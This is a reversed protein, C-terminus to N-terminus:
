RAVETLVNDALARAWSAAMPPPVADGLREWQQYFSGALVYDDPFGCIRKLEPITFRRRVRTTSARLEGTTQRGALQSMVTPHPHDLSEFRPVFADNGLTQQDFEVEVVRGAQVTPMPRDGVETGAHGNFGNAGEVVIADDVHWYASDSVVVTPAPGDSIVPPNRKREYSGMRPTGGALLDGIAERVTYQYPLPTPWAPAVGLDDRVGVIIVRRRAQPVGLWSADLTRAEVKYGCARLAAMIRKFYGKARGKVLGTVNEAVFVKPRVGDVLRAYEYFLDDTRQHQGSYERVERWSRDRQGATSFPECPPSGDLVDLEGVGLGCADLLTQAELARVDERLLVTYDAKNAAYSAQAAPVFECAALVRYGAMRYGTSSGGAGCFLSAVRLGNWPVARVEDMTPILYRPKDLMSPAILPDPHGDDELGCQEVASGGLGHAAIQPCPKDLSRTVEWARTTGGRACAYQRHVLVFTM